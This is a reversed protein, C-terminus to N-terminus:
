TTYHISGNYYDHQADNGHQYIGNGSTAIAVVLSVQVPEHRKQQNEENM